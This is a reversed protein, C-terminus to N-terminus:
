PSPLWLAAGGWGLHFRQQAANSPSAPAAFAPPAPAPAPALAPSLSLAPDRAPASAPAPAPAAAPASLSAQPPIPAPFVDLTSAACCRSCERGEPSRVLLARAGACAALRLV